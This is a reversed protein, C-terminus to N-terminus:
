YGVGRCLVKEMIHTHHFLIYLPNHDREWVRWMCAWNSFDSPFLSLLPFHLIGVSATLYGCVGLLLGM